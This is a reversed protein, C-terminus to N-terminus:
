YNSIKKFIKYYTFELKVGSWFFHHHHFSTAYILLFIFFYKKTKINLLRNNLRVIKTNNEFNILKKRLLFFILLAILHFHISFWRSWDEAMHFIPLSFVFAIILLYFFNKKYILFDGEKFTTFKLLLYLPIFSYLIYFIFGVYTYPENFIYFFDNSEVISTGEFYSGASTISVDTKLAAIPGWWDCKAPVYQGLSNCIIMTHESTGKFNYLLIMTLCSIIVLVTIQLILIKLENRKTLFLLPIILYPLYFFHGEHNLLLFPFLFIFKWNKAFNFSKNSLFKLYFLYFVFLVIEKRIGVKSIVIIFFYFLPSFIIFYTLFNFKIRQVLSYSFYYFFSLIVSLVLIYSIQINNKFVKSLNFIFEGILGRRVFGNQYNILWEGYQWADRSISHDFVKLISFIYFFVFLLTIFYDQKSKILFNM